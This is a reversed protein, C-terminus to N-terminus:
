ESIYPKTNDLMLIIIQKYRYAIKCINFSLFLLCFLYLYLIYIYVLGIKIIISFIFVVIFGIATNTNLSVFKKFQNTQKLRKIKWNDDKLTMLISLSTFLLGVFTISTGIMQESIKLILEEM